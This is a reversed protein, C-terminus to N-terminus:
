WEAIPNMTGIVVIVSLYDPYCLLLLRINKRPRHLIIGPIWKAWKALIMREPLSTSFAMMITRITASRLLM